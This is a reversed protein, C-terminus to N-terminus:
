SCRQLKRVHSQHCESHKEVLVLILCGACHNPDVSPCHDSSNLSGKGLGLELDVEVQGSGRTCESTSVNNPLNPGFVSFMVRRVFGRQAVRRLPSPSSLTVQPPPNPSPSPPHPPNPHLLQFPPPSLMHARSRRLAQQHVLVPLLARLAPRLQRRRLLWPLPLSAEVNDNCWKIADNCFGLLLAVSLIQGFSWVNEGPLVIDDNELIFLQANFPKGHTRGYNSWMYFSFSGHIWQLALLLASFVTMITWYGFEYLKYNCEPQSGFKSAKSWLYVSWAFLSLFISNTFIGLHPSIKEFEVFPWLITPLSATGVVMIMYYLLVAHYLTLQGQATQIIATLMLALLYVRTNNLLSSILPRTRPVRPIVMLLFSTIYVSIRIGVGDVDPNPKIGDCEWPDSMQLDIAENQRNRSTQKRNVGPLPSASATTEFRGSGFRPPARGWDYTTMSPEHGKASYTFRDLGDVLEWSDMPREDGVDVDDVLMLVGFRVVWEFCLWAGPVAGVLVVVVLDLELSARLSLLGGNLMSPRM